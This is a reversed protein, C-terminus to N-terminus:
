AAYRAGSDSAAPMAGLRSQPLELWHEGSVIRFGPLEGGAALDSLATLLSFATRASRREGKSLDSLIHFWAHGPPSKAFPEARCEMHSDAVLEPFDDFRDSLEITAIACWEERVQYSISM